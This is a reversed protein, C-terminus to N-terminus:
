RYQKVQQESWDWYKRGLEPDLFDKRQEEIKGYPVVWTGNNEETVATDLGAFLETYAGYITDALIMKQNMYAIALLYDICLQGGYDIGDLVHKAAFRVEPKRPEAGAHNMHATQSNAIKAAMRVLSIVGTDKTRRVLEIAHLANGAKSRSYMQWKGEVNHYDMNGFDIVGKPAADAASSSVWVVRISNKPATKATSVLVDMLSTMFLFHGLNNTGLQLEYGQKTKWGAPPIMVGANLWLVDLRTERSLFEDASRKITSLDALDLTLFVLEGKSDPHASKIREITAL